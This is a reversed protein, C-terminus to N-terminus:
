VGCEQSNEPAQCAPLHVRRSVSRTYIMVPVVFPAVTLSPATISLRSHSLPFAARRLRPEWPDQAAWPCSEESLGDDIGSKIRGQLTQRGKLSAVQSTGQFNLPRPSLTFCCFAVCPNFLGRRTEQIWIWRGRSWRRKHWPNTDINGYCLLEVSLDFRWQALWLLQNSGTLCGFGPIQPSIHPYPCTAGLPM